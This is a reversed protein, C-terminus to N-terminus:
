KQSATTSFKLLKQMYKTLNKIMYLEWWKIWEKREQGARSGKLVLANESRDVSGIGSYSFYATYNKGNNSQRRTRLYWKIRKNEPQTSIKKM